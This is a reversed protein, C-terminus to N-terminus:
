GVQESGGGVEFAIVKDSVLSRTRGRGVLLLSRAFGLNYQRHLPRLRAQFNHVRLCSPGAAFVRGQTIFLDRSRAATNAALVLFILCRCNHTFHVLCLNL